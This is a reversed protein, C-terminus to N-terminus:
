SHDNYMTAIKAAINASIDDDSDASESPTAEEPTTPKRALFIDKLSIGKLLDQIEPVSFSIIVDKDLFLEEPVDVVDNNSSAPIPTATKKGNINSVSFVIDYSTLPIPNRDRDVMTNEIDNLQQAATRSLQLLKVKNSPTEPVNAILAQCSYCTPPYGSGSKKTETQCNTCVKVLTRDLVNLTYKDSKASYGKLNRYNKTDSLYLKRNNQCVPCEDGLCKITTKGTPTILFHAEDFRAQSTAELFRVIHTGLTLSLFTPKTFKSGKQREHISFPM